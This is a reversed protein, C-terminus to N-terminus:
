IENYKVGRIDISSPFVFVTESGCRPFSFPRFFTGRKFYWLKGRGDFSFFTFQACLRKNGEQTQAPATTYYEGGSSARRKKRPPVSLGRLVSHLSNRRGRLLGFRLGASRSRNPSSSPLLPYATKAARECVACFPISRTEESSSRTYRLQYRAHNPVM